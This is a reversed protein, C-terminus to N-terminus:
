RSAANLVATYRAGDVGGVHWGREALESRLTAAAEARAKRAAARAARTAPDVTAPGAAQALADPFRAPALETGTEPDITPVFFSELRDVIGVCPLDAFTLILNQLFRGRGDDDLPDVVVLISPIAGVGQQLLFQATEFPSPTLSRAGLLVLTTDASARAAFIGERGTRTTVTRYGFRELGRALAHAVTPDPHVVVALDVGSATAAHDLVAVVRSSGPYPPDGAGRALTRAAAFQLAADPVALARVLTDRVRPPLVSPMVPPLVPPLVPPRGAGAAVAPPELATAVAAATEWLGRDIAEDLLDAATDVDFGDPGSSAARLQAPPLTTPDAAPDTTTALLGELQALLVLRVTAPDRTDLAILDRALHMAEQARAARPPLRIPEPSRTAPNWVHRDVTGSVAGGFAAAAAAPTAIPELALHDVLPLGAPSLVRDLRRALRAIAAERSPVSGERRELIATAAARADPPTDPVLAPALVLDTIEAAGAADLGRLVGAWHPVDDSGLWVLLPERAEPGLAVVLERAVTAERSDPRAAQLVDILMPLAAVGGRALRRTAERRVAQDDSTLSATAEALRAPDRQRAVATTRIATMVRGVAPERSSLLRDLRALGAAPFADGLDALVEGKRDGARDITAALQAVYDIAVDFAEIDAARLAADLLESPTTRRPFALSDVVAQQWPDLLPPVPPSPPQAIASRSLSGGAALLCATAVATALGRRKANGIGQRV